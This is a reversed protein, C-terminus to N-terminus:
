FHYTASVRNFPTAQNGSLIYGGSLPFQENLTMDIDLNNFRVGLGMGLNFDATTTKVQTTNAPVTFDSEDTTTHTWSKSAGLRVKLWRTADTEIAGFFLPLGSIKDEHTHVATAAGGTNADTREYSHKAEGFAVGFLLLNNDNVRMNDSIGAGYFKYTEDAAVPNALLGTMEWSIDDNVYWGAPVWTHTGSRHLFARAQLAYSANGQDSWSQAAPTETRDFTFKRFTAAAELRDDEGFHLAVAPTIGMTNIEINDLVANPDATVFAPIPDLLIPDFPSFGEASFSAPSNDSQEFKSNTLDFRVALDLKTFARGWIVDLQENNLASGGTFVQQQNQAFEFAIAGIRPFNRIITFNQDLTEVTGPATGNVDGTPNNGLEALVLNNQRVVSTPYWYINAYDDTFQSTTPTTLAMGEMRSLSAQSVGASIALLAAIALSVILKRQFM